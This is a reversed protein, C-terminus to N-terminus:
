EAKVSAPVVDFIIMAASPWMASLIPMKTIPLSAPKRRELSAAGKLHEAAEDNGLDITSNSACKSAARPTQRFDDLSSMPAIM